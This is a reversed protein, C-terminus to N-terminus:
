HSMLDLIEDADLLHVAADVDLQSLAHQDGVHQTSTTCGYEVGENLAEDLTKTSPSSVTSLQVDSSMLVYLDFANMADKVQQRIPTKFGLSAKREADRNFFLEAKRRAGPLLAETPSDFVLDAFLVKVHRAVRKAGEESYTDTNVLRLTFEEVSDEQEISM